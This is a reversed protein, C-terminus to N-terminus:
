EFEQLTYCRWVVGGLGVVLPPIEKQIAKVRLEHEM